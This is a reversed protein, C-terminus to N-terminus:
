NSSMRSWSKYVPKNRGEKQLVRIRDRVETIKLFGKVTRFKKEANLLATACWRQGMKKLAKILGKGGDIVFLIEESFQLGRNELNNLLEICVEHSETAGELSALRTNGEVSM